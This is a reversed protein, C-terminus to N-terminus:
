PIKEMTETVVRLFERSQAARAAAWAPDWAAARAAAWAAELAAVDESFCWEGSEDIVFGERYLEGDVNYRQLKM